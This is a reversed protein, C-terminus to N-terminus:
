ARRRSERRSASKPEPRRSFAAPGSKTFRSRRGHRVLDMYIAAGMSAEPTESTSRWIRAKRAREAIEAPRLPKKAQGLVEAAAEVASMRNKM